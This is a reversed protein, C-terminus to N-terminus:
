ALFFSVSVPAAVPAPAPDYAAVSQAGSSSPLEGAEAPRVYNSPFLGGPEPGDALVGTWWDGEKKTIRILAQVDIVCCITNIM